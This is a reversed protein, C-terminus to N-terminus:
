VRTPCEGCDTGSCTPKTGIIRALCNSSNYDVRKSIRLNTRRQPRSRGIRRKEKEISKIKTTPEILDVVETIPHKRSGTKGSREM